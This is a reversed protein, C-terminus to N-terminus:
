HGGKKRDAALRELEKLVDYPDLHSNHVRRLMQRVEPTEAVWKHLEPEMRSNLSDLRKFDAGVSKLEAVIQQLLETTPQRRNREIDALFGASIGVERAFARLPIGAQMRLRQIEEGL